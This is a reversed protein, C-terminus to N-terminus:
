LLTKQNGSDIHSTAMEGEFMTLEALIASLLSSKGCGVCGIIGVFDGKKVVLDINFLKFIYNGEEELIHPEVSSRKDISLSSKKSKGKGKAMKKDKKVSHLKRKEEASLEKNWTYGGTAIVLDTNVSSHQAM